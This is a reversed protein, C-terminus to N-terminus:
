VVALLLSWPTDRLVHGLAGKLIEKGIASGACWAIEALPHAGTSGGSARSNPGFSVATGPSIEGRERLLSVIAAPDTQRPDFLVLLSGTTPNAATEVVGPLQRVTAAAREAQRPSGKLGPLKVRLRGPVTHCYIETESVSAGM